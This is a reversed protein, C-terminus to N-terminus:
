WAPKSDRKYKIVMESMFAEFMLLFIIYKKRRQANVINIIALALLKVYSFCDLNSHQLLTLTNCLFVESVM